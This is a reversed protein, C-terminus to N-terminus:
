RHLLYKTNKSLLLRFGPPPITSVCYKADTPAINYLRLIKRRHTYHQLRLIKRRHTYHQLRLIKRRHTCHQLSAINQTEVISHICFNFVSFQFNYFFYQVFDTTQQSNDTTLRLRVTTQQINNTYYYTLFM